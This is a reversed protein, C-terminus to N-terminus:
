RTVTFLSVIVLVLVSFGLLYVERRPTLPYPLPRRTLTRQRRLGILYTALALVVAFGVAVLGLRGPFGRLDSLLLLAGNALLALSTRTWALATREAQLGAESGRPGVTIV